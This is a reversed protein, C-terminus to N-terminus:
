LRSSRAEAPPTPLTAQHRVYIRGRAWRYGEEESGQESLQVRLVTGSTTGVLEDRSWPMLVGPGFSQTGLVAGLGLVPGPHTASGLVVDGQSPAFSEGWPHALLNTLDTVSGTAALSTLELRDASGSLRLTDFAFGLDIDYQCVLLRTGSGNRYFAEFLGDQVQCTNIVGETRVATAVGGLAVAAAPDIATWGGGNTTMDCFVTATVGRSPPAIRYFGDGIAGEYRYPAPPFRYEQCSAATTDDGWQRPAGLTGPGVLVPVCGQGDSVFGARCDCTYQDEGNVCAGGPACPDPTVACEDMDACTPGNGDDVPAFGPDCACAYDGPRNECAGRGCPEAACENTDVCTEGGASSEHGPDCTCVYGGGAATCTGPGCPAGACAGPAADPAPGTTADPAADPGPGSTADPAPGPMPEASCILTAPDCVQGPPCTQAESCPIGTPYDPGFCAVALWAVGPLLAATM